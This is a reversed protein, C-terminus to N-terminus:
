EVFKHQSLTVQLLYSTPGSLVAPDEWTIHLSSSTATVALNRPPADPDTSPFSLCPFSLIHIRASAPWKILYVMSTSPQVVKQM